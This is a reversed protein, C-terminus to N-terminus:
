RASVYTSRELHPIGPDKLADKEVVTIRELWAEPSYNAKNAQILREAHDLSNDYGGLKRIVQIYQVVLQRATDTKYNFRNILAEVISREYPNLRVQTKM